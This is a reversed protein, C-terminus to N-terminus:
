NDKRIINKFKMYDVYYLRDFRKRLTGTLIRKIKPLLLYYNTFFLIFPKGQAGTKGGVISRPITLQYTITKEINKNRRLKVFNSSVSTKVPSALNYLLNSLWVTSKVM